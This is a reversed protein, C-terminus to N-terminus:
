IHQIEFDVLARKSFKPYTTHETIDLEQVLFQVYKHQLDKLIFQKTNIIFIDLHNKYSFMNINKHEVEAHSAKIGLHVEPLNILIKYNDFINIRSIHKIKLTNAYGLIWLLELHIHQM